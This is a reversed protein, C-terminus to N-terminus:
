NCFKAFTASNLIKLNKNLIQNITNKANLKPFCTNICANEWILLYTNGPYLFFSILCLFQTPIFPFYLSLLSLSFRRKAKLNSHFDSCWIFREIGCPLTECMVFIVCTLPIAITFSQPIFIAHNNRYKVFFIRLFYRDTDVRFPSIRSFERECIFGFVNRNM